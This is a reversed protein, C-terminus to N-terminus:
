TIDEIYFTEGHASAVMAAPTVNEVTYLERECIVTYMRGDHIYTLDNYIQVQETCSLGLAIVLAQIRHFLPIDIPKM